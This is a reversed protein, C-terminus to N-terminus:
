KIILDQIYDSECVLNFPRIYHSKGEVEPFDLTMIAVQANESSFLEPYGGKLFVPETTEFLDKLANIQDEPFTRNQGILFGKITFRYDDVNFQEKVTGKRESVPTKIVTKMLNVAITCADIEISKQTNKWFTAPFWIDRGMSSFKNLAIRKSTYDFNALDRQNEAVVYKIDESQSSGNKVIFPSNGFTARYLKALDFTQSM